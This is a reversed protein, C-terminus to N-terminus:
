AAQRATAIGARGRLLAADAERITIGHDGGVVAVVAVYGPGPDLPHIRVAEPPVDVPWGLLAPSEGPGTVEVRDPSIRLGHGTAKLAAEKRVWIRAFGEYRAHEPLAALAQRESETLACRALDDVPTEPVAEVDVGLPGVDTLAVAVRDGSHSISVHLSEEETVVRPKGHYRDCDPCTRDVVVDAPRVGLRDGAAERLLWAGTLFRRRDPERRFRAARRLENASLDGVLTEITEQRPDAWWVQCEGATVASAIM